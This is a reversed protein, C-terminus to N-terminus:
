KNELIWKDDEFTDRTQNYSPFKEGELVHHFEDAYPHRNKGKPICINTAWFEDLDSLKIVDVPTVGFQVTYVKLEAKNM